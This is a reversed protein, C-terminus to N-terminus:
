RNVAYPMGNQDRQYTRCEIYDRNQFDMWPLFGLEYRWKNPPKAVDTATPELFAHAGWQAAQNWLEMHEPRQLGIEKLMTPWDLDDAFYLCVTLGRVWRWDYKEGDKAFVTPNDSGVPGVMSVIVMDAPKFGKMRADLIAQANAPLLKTM